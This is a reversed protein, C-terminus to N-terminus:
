CTLNLNESFKFDKYDELEYDLLNFYKMIVNKVLLCNNDDRSTDADLFYLNSDIIKFSILYNETIPKITKITKIHNYTSKNFIFIKVIGSQDDYYIIELRDYSYMKIDDRYSYSFDKMYRNFTYRNPTEEVVEDGASTFIKEIEQISDESSKTTPIISDLLSTTTSTIVSDDNEKPSNEKLKTIAAVCFAIVILVLAFTFTKMFENFRKKM